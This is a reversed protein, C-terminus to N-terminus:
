PSPRFEMARTQGSLQPPYGIGRRMARINAQHHLPLVALDRQFGIRIAQRCLRRRAEADITV